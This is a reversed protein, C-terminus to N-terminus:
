ILYNKPGEGGDREGERDMCRIGYVVYGTGRRGARVLRKKRRGVPVYPVTGVM